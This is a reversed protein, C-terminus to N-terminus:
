SNTQVCGGMERGLFLPVIEWKWLGGRAVDQTYSRKLIIIVPLAKRCIESIEGWVLPVCEPKVMCM